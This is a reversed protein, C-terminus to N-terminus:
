CRGQRSAVGRRRHVIAGPAQHLAHIHRVARTVRELRVLLKRCVTLLKLEAPTLELRRPLRVSLSDGLEEELGRIAQSLPSQDIHIYEAARPINLQEAVVIFYRLHRLEIM